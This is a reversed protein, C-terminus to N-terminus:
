MLLIVPCYNTHPNNKKKKGTLHQVILENEALQVKQIKLQEHSYLDM